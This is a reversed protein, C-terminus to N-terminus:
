RQAAIWVSGVTTGGIPGTGASQGLVGDPAMSVRCHPLGSHQLVAEVFGPQKHTVMIGSLDKPHNFVERWLERPMCNKTCTEQSHSRPCWYCTDQYYLLYGHFLKQTQGNTYLLWLYSSQRFDLSSFNLVCNQQQLLMYEALARKKVAQKGNDGTRFYKARYTKDFLILGDHIPKGM